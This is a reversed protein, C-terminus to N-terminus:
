GMELIYYDADEGETQNDNYLEVAHRWGKNFGKTYGFDYADKMVELIIPPLKKQKIIKELEKYRTM